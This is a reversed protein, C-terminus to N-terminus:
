LVLRYEILEIIVTRARKLIGIHLKSYGGEKNHIKNINVMLVSILSARMIAPM